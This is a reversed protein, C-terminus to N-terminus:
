VSLSVAFLSWRDVFVVNLQVLPHDNQLAKVTASQSCNNASQFAKLWQNERKLGVSFGHSRVFDINNLGINLAPQIALQSDNDHDTKSIKGNGQLSQGINWLLCIQQLFPSTCSWIARHRCCWVLIFHTQCCCAWMLDMRKRQFGRVFSM